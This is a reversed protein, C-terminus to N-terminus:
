LADPSVRPESNRTFVYVFEYWSAGEIDENGSPPKIADQCDFPWSPVVALM